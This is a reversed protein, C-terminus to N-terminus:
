QQKQFRYLFSLIRAVAMYLEPPIDQDVQLAALVQVLAKDERIPIGHEKATDIIREAFNGSGRATIKPAEDGQLPEYRLAVALKQKPNPRFLPM